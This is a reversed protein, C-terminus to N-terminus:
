RILTIFGKESIKNGTIDNASFIYYYTGDPCTSGSNNTKGNWLFAAANSEFIKMGWRNFILLHYNMFGDAIINFFDNKGDDNPSFVNPIDLACHDVTITITKTDPLNNCRSSYNYAILNVYFTGTDFTHTPNMTSDSSGDGFSWHYSAGNTSTNSFNVTLPSCGIVPQAIFDSTITIPHEIHILDRQIFTDVVIGCPTNASAILTVSYTGSDTYTHSANVSTASTSDGFNWSFSTGNTSTNIFDITIPSCGNLQNPFFNSIVPVPPILNIIVSATGTCGDADTVTVTYISPSHIITSQNTSGTNWLYQSYSGVNLTISDGPCITTNGTITPTPNPNININIAATATCGFSDTVTVSYTNATNITITQTNAGTSWTYAAFTGANLLLSSGSCLSNNGIFAPAPHHIIINKSTTGICGNGDTVTVTYTTAINVTVTETTQGTSWHYQLYSGADLNSYSGYCFASDGTIIPTPIQNVTIIKTATGTCGNGDTVTIIYTGSTDVITSQITSGNSWHYQTFSGTTLISSNGNCFVSDGSINPSPDPFVTVTQYSTDPHYACGANVILRITYTGPHTYTHVPNTTNNMTTDGFNWYYVTGNVSYNTFTVTLPNCGAIPQATFASTVNTQTGLVPCQPNPVYRWLDNIWSGMWVHGGFLWLNGTTDSWGLAGMRNRPYNTPSSVTMTGYSGPQNILTTGGIMTWQNTAVNYNWFDGLLNLLSFHTGGGFLVFNDCPRTWVARNEFRGRPVNLTDGVCITGARGTDNVLNTGSMWTWELTTPNFRWLDNFLRLTSYSPYGFDMGGFLWFNGDSDKWKSYCGRSPPNNAANPVGKIGYVGATDNLVNSGKMWTWINTSQDYKWLDSYTDYHSYGTYGGFIWLNNDADVWTANTEWRSPIVNSTDPVGMIGYHGLSNVVTAIGAMWTWENTAIHYRWLDNLGGQNVMAQGIGGFMWLDGATDVWTGVGWGRGGPMNTPSPIGRVGYVGMPNPMGSGKIWAWQNIAPKFEWLDGNDYDSGFLWFNGDRDTWNCSEYSTPPTNAADFVGQIGYVGDINDTTYATTSDGKMWTWQGTQAFSHITLLSFHIALLVIIRKM